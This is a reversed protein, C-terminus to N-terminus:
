NIIRTPRRASPLSCSAAPPLEPWCSTGLTGPSLVVELDSGSFASVRRKVVVLDEAAPEMAPHPDVMNTPAFERISQFTKNRASVEPFGARFGVVVYVVLIHRQHAAAVTAAVKALYEDKNSLRGVIIPQVDMVLLATHEMQNAM